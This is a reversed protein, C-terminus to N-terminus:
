MLVGTATIVPKDSDGVTIHGHTMVCRRGTHDATVHVIFDEGRHVVKLFNTNLQVTVTTRKKMYFRAMVSMVVDVATSSIGGHLTGNPNLMWEETSFLVSLSRDQASCALFRPNLMNNLRSHLEESDENIVATLVREMFAQETENEAKCLTGDEMRSFHEYNM